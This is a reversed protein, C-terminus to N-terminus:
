KAAPAQAAPAGAPSAAVADPDIVIILGLQPVLHRIEQLKAVQTRDSVFALSAGSDNLIYAAQAPALTPYIPVTAAASRLIALDAIIWEPRSESMLAVRDGPQLGLTELGCTLSRIEDVFAETSWEQFGEARCRRIFAPRPFRRALDEPLAALTTIQDVSM